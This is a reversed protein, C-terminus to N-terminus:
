YSDDGVIVSATALREKYTYLILLPGYCLEAQMFYFRLSYTPPLCTQRGILM